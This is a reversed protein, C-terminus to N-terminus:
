LRVIFHDIDDAIAKWTFRQEVIGRGLKGWEPLNIQHNLAYKIGDAINEPVNDDVFVACKKSETINRFVKLESCLVAKEMAMYELIKIPVNGEWFQLLPYSLLCLDAQSIFEPIKDYPQYGVFHVRDDIALEHALNKLSEQLEGGGILVFEVYIGQEKLIGVAQIAEMLGRNPTMAGHFFLTFPKHNTNVFHSPNFLEINVGSPWILYNPHLPVQVEEIFQQRLGESIYTIGQHYKRNYNLIVKSAYLFITRGMSAEDSNQNHLPKRNDLLFKAKKKKWRRVVSFFFTWHDVIVLDPKIRNYLKNFTFFANIIYSLRRLYPFRITDIFTTQPTFSTKEKQYPFIYHIDHKEKLHRHTERWTTIHTPEDVDVWYIWIIKM